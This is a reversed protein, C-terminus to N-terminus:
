SRYGARAWGLSGIQLHSLAWPWCGGGGGGGPSGWGARTVGQTPLTCCHGRLGVPLPYCLSKSRSSTQSVPYPSPTHSHNPAGVASVLGEGRWPCELGVGAAEDARSGECVCEQICARACAGECLHRSKERAGFHLNGGPLGAARGWVLCGCLPIPSTDLGGQLQPASPSLTQHWGM